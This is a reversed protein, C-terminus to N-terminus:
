ADRAMKAAKAVTFDHGPPHGFSCKENICRGAFKCDKPVPAASSSSTSAAMAAYVESLDFELAAM